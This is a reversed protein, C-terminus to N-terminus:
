TVTTDEAHEVVTLVHSAAAVYRRDVLERCQCHSLSNGRRVIAIVRTSVQPVDAKRLRGVRSKRSSMSRKARDVMQEEVRGARRLRCLARM